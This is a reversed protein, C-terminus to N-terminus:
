LHTSHAEGPPMVLPTHWTGLGRVMEGLEIRRGHSGRGRGGSVVAAGGGPGTRYSM